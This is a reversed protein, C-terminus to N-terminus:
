DNGLRQQFEDVRETPVALFNGDYRALEASLPLLKGAIGLEFWCYSRRVLFEIIERAAYGWARTRIDQVEALIVPRPADRLLGGAGRLFSLEAGEIDVKIFDVRPMGLEKLVEDMRRMEVSIKTTGQRVAPLRLSNCWDERGEVLFLEAEGGGEDALAFPMVTVNRCGNLRLHRLLRKRERPSPEFAIVKGRKGVCRSMLLTHLGHDGVDLVTMGLRLLKGVVAIEAAEFEGHMLEGDLASGEALWWAGFSLRVPIPMGPFIRRVRQAAFYIERARAEGSVAAAAAGARWAGRIRRTDMSRSRRAAGLHSGSGGAKNSRSDGAELAAKLEKVIRSITEGRAQILKRYAPQDFATLIINGRKADRGGVASEKSVIPDHSSIRAGKGPMM